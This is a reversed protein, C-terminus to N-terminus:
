CWKWLKQIGFARGAFNYREQLQKAPVELLWGSDVMEQITAKLAGSSGRRDNRFASLNATRRQLYVYPVVRDKFLNEEVHYTAAQEYTGKIYVELVRKVDHILKSDGSGVDGSAFRTSVVDVDREVFAVAWEALDRTVVPQDVNMGVALLASLKLAKLHARNWLEVEVDNLSANMRKDAARDFEDLYSQAKSDTQVPVFTGNNSTTLAVTTLRVFRQTLEAPPPFNANKNRAPRPGKYEVFSFRPILGESIHSASLGDFLAGPTTEGLITVSPAQVTKTNKETDSYVSSRLYNNWGSKGFIDLLVRKTMITPGPARPDCLQQLTLGFEGLVSVFCPREDLVRILAQGSAFAGPGIFSDIMPVTPRVSAILNDIGKQAGEKGSGTKAILVLYQNLGTGSVNYSRGAVGATLAIAATLAVEPVPRIASAFFYHALEGILGPPPKALNPPEYPDSPQTPAVVEVRAPPPQPPALLAEAQAKLASIDVTPVAQTTRIRALTRNLYVDNVLAKERKGLATMRFMRKVQENSPTYFALMSLLSLDAESQSPYGLEKWEGRCLANYKDANAANMAMECVDRDSLLEDRDELPAVPQVKIEHCLKDLLAQYDTIPAQRVVNGTCIMYRGTSYVEVGDRTHIGAPIHGRVIIHYGLGGASRETYSDFSELIKRHIEWQAPTLPKAPKNDLDIVTYPDGATLVFGVNPYGTRSAEEFTGWSSPDSVSAAQGTRPNLPIKDPGSCVWQPLARLEAPINHIM